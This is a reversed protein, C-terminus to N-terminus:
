SVLARARNQTGRSHWDQESEISHFSPQDHGSSTFEEGNPDTSDIRIYAWNHAHGPGQRGHAVKVGSKLELRRTGV